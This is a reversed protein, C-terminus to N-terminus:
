HLGQASIGYIGCIETYDWDIDGAGNLMTGDVGNGWLDYVNDNGDNEHASIIFYNGSPTGEAKLDFSIRRVGTKYVEDFRYGVIAGTKLAIARTYDEELLVSGAQSARTPHNEVDLAFFGDPLDTASGKESTWNEFSDFHSVFVEDEAAMSTVPMLGVFMSAVLCASIKKLNKKM